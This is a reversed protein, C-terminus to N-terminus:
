YNWARTTAFSRLLFPGEAAGSAVLSFVVAAIGGDNDDAESCSLVQNGSPSFDAISVGATASDDIGTRKTATVWTFDNPGGGFAGFVACAAVMLDGSSATLTDTAHPSESNQGGFTDGASAVDDDYYALSFVVGDSAAGAGVWDWVLDVSGTSPTVKYGLMGQFFSASADSGILTMGAGDLTVSGSAFFDTVGGGYGSVGLVALKTGSPVTATVTGTNGSDTALSEASIFAM